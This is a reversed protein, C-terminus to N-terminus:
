KCNSSSSRIITKTINKISEATGLIDYKIPHSHFLNEYLKQYLMTMTDDLDM